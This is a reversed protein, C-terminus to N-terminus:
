DFHVFLRHLLPFLLWHLCLVVRTYKKYKKLRFNRFVVKVSTRRWQLIYESRQELSVIQETTWKITFKRPSRTNPRGTKIFPRKFEKLEKERNGDIDKFFSISTYNNKQTEGLALNVRDHQRPKSTKRTSLSSLWWFHVSLYHPSFCTVCHDKPSVLVTLFSM